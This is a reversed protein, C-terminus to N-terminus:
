GHRPNHAARPGPPACPRRSLSLSGPQGFRRDAEDSCFIWVRMYLVSRGQIKKTGRMEGNQFLRRLGPAAFFPATCRKSRPGENKGPVRNGSKRWPNARSAGEWRHLPKGLNEKVDLIGITFGAVVEFENRDIGFVEYIPDKKIGAMGHTYLGLKRAQLTLSM